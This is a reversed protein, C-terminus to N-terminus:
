VAATLADLDLAAGLAALSTRAQAADAAGARLAALLSASESVYPVTGLRRAPTLRALLEDNTAVALDDEPALRNVVYGAVPIRRSHLAELTLLAANIAGLRSGVVVLVAAGLDAALDAFSAEITVPVLLGGAGEMLLLDAQAARGRLHDVLAAVDVRTGAREAALAPALPERFRHPCIATLPAPDRAASKLTVADTPILAGDHTPCGTEVPKAVAVRLGRAGLAAAIAASVLTKGIGTDTGTVFLLHPSPASM